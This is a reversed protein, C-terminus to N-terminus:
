LPRHFHNPPPKQRNSIRPHKGWFLLVLVLPFLIGNRHQAGVIPHDAAGGGDGGGGGRSWVGSSNLPTKLPSSKKKPQPGGKPVEGLSWWGGVVLQWWGGVALRWWGGIVLWRGGGVVM